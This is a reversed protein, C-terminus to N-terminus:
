IGRHWCKPLPPRFIALLNGKGPSSKATPNRPDIFPIRNQATKREDDGYWYHEIKRVVHGFWPRDPNAPLLAAITLGNKSGEIAHYVWSELDRYPPNLWCHMNPKVAASCRSNMVLNRYNWEFSLSDEKETFYLPAKANEDGAALDFSFNFIQNLPDYIDDPTMWSDTRREDISSGGSVRVIDPM